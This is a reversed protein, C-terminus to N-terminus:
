EGSEATADPASLIIQSTDADFTVPLQQLFISGIIGDITTGSSQSFSELTVGTMAPVGAIASGGVTFADLTILGMSAPLGEPHQISAPDPALLEVAHASLGVAITGMPDVLFWGEHTADAKARVCPLTGNFAVFPLILSDDAPEPIHDRMILTHHPGDLTAHMRLLVEFSLIAILDTSLGLGRRVGRLDDTFCPVNRMERAGIQLKEIVSRHLESSVLTFATNAFVAKGHVGDIVIDVTPIAAGEQTLWPVITEAPTSPHTIEYATRTGMARSINLMVTAWEPVPTDTSAAELDAAAAAFDNHLFHARARLRLLLPTTADHLARLAETPDRHALAVRADIEKARADNANMQLAYEAALHARELNGEHFATQARESWTPAPPSSADSTPAAPLSVANQPTNIPVPTSGCASSLAAVVLMFVHIPHKSMIKMFRMGVIM